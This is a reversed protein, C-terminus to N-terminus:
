LFGRLRGISEPPLFHATQIHFAEILALPTLTISYQRMGPFSQSVHLTLHYRKLQEALEALQNILLAPDVKVLTLTFQKLGSQVLTQPGGAYWGILFVISVNSGGVAIRLDDLEQIADGGIQGIEKTFGLVKLEQFLHSDRFDKRSLSFRFVHTDPYPTRSAGGAFLRVAKGHRQQSLKFFPILPIEADKGGIDGSTYQSNGASSCISFISGVFHRGTQSLLVQLFSIAGISFCEEFHDRQEFLDHGEPAEVQLLGEWELSWEVADETSIHHYVEVFWCLLVKNLSHSGIKCRAAIEKHSMRLAQRSKLVRKM